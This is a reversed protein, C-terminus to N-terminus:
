AAHPRSGEGAMVARGSQRGGCEHETRTNYARGAPLVRVRGQERVQAQLLEVIRDLGPAALVHPQHAVHVVVAAAGTAVGVAMVVVAVAVVVGVRRITGRRRGTHHPPQHGGEAECRGV